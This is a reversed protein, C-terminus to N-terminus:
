LGELFERVAAMYPEYAAFRIHHGVGPINVVRINDNLEVAMEAVEPTVIGGEAPDATILLVPCSLAKAVERWDMRGQGGLDFFAPDLELKAGCWARLAEDPWTPHKPREQAVVEDVTMGEMAFIWKANPSQRGMRGRPEAGPQPIWWPADELIIARVMEPFRAGLESAIFAGMSHGGVVAPGLDLARMLGALDAAQDIEEGPTVRASKGHARADPMVVDWDAELDRATPAWCWADDSFGHQLVLPPKDGKGTRVYHMRAGDVTLDSETWHDPM